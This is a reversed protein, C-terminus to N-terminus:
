AKGEQALVRLMIKALPAAPLIGLDATKHGGSSRVTIMGAWVSYAGTILRGMFEITVQDENAARKPLEPESM